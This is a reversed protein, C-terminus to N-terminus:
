RRSEPVMLGVTAPLVLGEAALARVLMRLESRDLGRHEPLSPHPVELARAAQTARRTIAAELSWVRRAGGLMDGSRTVADHQWLLRRLDAAITEIPPNTPWPDLRHRRTLRRRRALTRAAALAAAPLLAGALVLLGTKGAAIGAAAVAFVLLAAAVRRRGFRRTVRIRRRNRRPQTSM